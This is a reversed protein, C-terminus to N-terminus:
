PEKRKIKPEEVSGYFKWDSVFDRTLTQGTLAARVLAIPISNEKLVGDHFARETMNDTEVLERHLARIQLGGLLYACQYLPPYSGNFSRRVEATANAREHGVQEVLMEICDQPSMRELHFSLSFVIRACRHMRWFLMGIRDEPSTAFGLDWLRMEWYLAWGEIWFPTSFVRRYSRYREMMFMQLHHGPILEHQVTARAFHANNGRLSMQKQEHTMTHTPFSVQIVEGGLFFPNVLQQEPTMMEIRWTEQALPPVTLLAREEVFAIAERALGRILEPQRGPSEHLDKVKELARRRDDGCGLEQSARKMEAQCWALEHNAIAILEEPTYPIAEFALEALLAERGIPDGIIAGDDGPKIGVIKERLFDTYAKLAKDAAEYPAAAWWTFLPDYGNYFTFWHKLIERLRELRGAARNAITPKWLPELARGEATLEAEIRKQTKAIRRALDHLAGAASEPDAWEMRQRQEELDVVAAAFPLMPEIETEAVADLELRRLAHDLHNAFLLYDIRDEQSLADFDLGALAVRWNTYFRRKRERHAPSMELTFKRALSDRDTEYRAVIAPLRASPIQFANLDPADSVSPAADPANSPSKTSTSATPQM